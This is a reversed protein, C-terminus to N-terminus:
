IANGDDDVLALWGLNVAKGIMGRDISLLVKGTEVLRYSLMDQIEQVQDDTLTVDSITAKITALTVDPAPDTGNLVRVTADLLEEASVTSGLAKLQADLAKEDVPHIYREQGPPDMTQSVLTQKRDIDVLLLTNLKDKGVAVNNVVVLRAM